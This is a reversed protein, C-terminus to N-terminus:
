KSKKNISAIFGLVVMSVFEKGTLNFNDFMFFCYYYYVVFSYFIINSM